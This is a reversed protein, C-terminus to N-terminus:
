EWEEDKQSVKQGNEDFDVESGYDLSQSRCKKCKVDVFAQSLEKNPAPRKAEQKNGCEQCTRIWKTIM